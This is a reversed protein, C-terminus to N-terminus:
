RINVHKMNFHLNNGVGVGVLRLERQFHLRQDILVVISCEERPPYRPRRHAVSKLRRSRGVGTWALHHHILTVGHSVHVVGEASFESLRPTCESVFVFM